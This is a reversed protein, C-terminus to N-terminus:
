GVVVNCLIVVWFVDVQFSLQYKNQQQYSFQSGHSLACMEADSTVELLSRRSTAPHCVFVHLSYFVFKIEHIGTIKM